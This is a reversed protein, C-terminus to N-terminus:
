KELHSRLMWANKEHARLLDILLDTSGEDGLQSVDEISARCRNALETHDEALQSLMEDGSFEGEAEELSALDLFQKMTGPARGGVMRIREAITDVAEALEEYQKEFLLHLSFFRPDVLNWHFNQTKLYLLYTNALVRSLTDGVEICVDRELPAISM